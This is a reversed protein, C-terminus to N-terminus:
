QIMQEYFGLLIECREHESNFKKRQYIKDVAIDLDQHAKQLEAPMSLRNYLDSLNTTPYKSRVKLILQAREDINKKQSVSYKPIPFTNYVLGASYRYSSALRGGVLRMWCMHMKSILLGFLTKDADEVILVSDSPIIPPHLWGIPTYDRNQSSVRPIVLFPKKPIVVTGFLTPTKAIKLTSKRSSSIRFNRVREVRQKILPLKSILGPKINNLNLIWRHSDQLFESTGFYPQLFQEAKPENEIFQKKENEDFIYNRDDIPQSGVIMPPLGNLVKASEQIVINKNNLSSVDFLYPSIAYHTSQHPIDHLNEYTFLVRNKPANERKVLGIIVVHVHAKGRAESEWAFTRHAFSIELGYEGLLKPWLQAVQEGQTISNTAVLGIQTNSKQIYEASKFFWAAVYDLTGGSKGLSAIKRVQKRKDPSQMKAGQFPPNGIIYSCNTPELITKWDIELADGKVIKPSKNIPIRAYIQGFEMSLQNNMIHDMMWMATEAIRVAFENIEIGFFQDVNILSLESADLLGQNEDDRYARIERITEIELLRLERYATVLFNGCGCAPDFFTLKSLKTQFETLRKRRHTGKSKQIRKFEDRLNTLFLPELVKMIDKETTYHAGQTRREEKDLVFQFLSGFIAPSIDSWNFQCAKILNQRMEKSFSPIGVQELFLGGDVYPFDDLDHGLSIVREDIPINLIQFLHVLIRGLDYGDERSTELLELFSDRKDFIGTNDAFMCFVIRVLIKELDPSKHGSNKLDDHIEGVLEAALINVPDQDRFTRKQVGIIFSFNEIYEPLQSLKFKINSSENLDYLEFNQFDCLLIYRPLEYDKLGAFYDFAQTKADVLSKGASKQEVLLNGKWFLDIFGTKGSLLKVQEEFSGVKRVPIDFLGFFDQYFLQTQGKEYGQGQWRTVFESARTRIEKWTLRM